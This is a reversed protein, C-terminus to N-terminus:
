KRFISATQDTYIVEWGEKELMKALESSTQIVAWEIQYKSLIKAWQPSLTIVSEYEYTLEGTTDAMSDAFVSHDPWLYMALYGGWNIENFMKGQQPNGQLWNVAQIPFFVPSFKYISQLSQSSLVMVGVAVTILLPWVNGRIRQEMHSLTNELRFLFGGINDVRIAGALVFPAVIGYLHINRGAILSMGSFGALLIAQATSIKQTKAALLFISFSLLGLLVLFEPRSFDPQRAEYMRSMLYSNNVFGLLSKWPNLGGPNILSALFSIGAVILLNKGVQLIAYNRNFLYDWLWGAAYAFLALFGAIFEGHMNSWVLILAPFYWLRIKENQSLKDLWTLWVALFLMSFLFPRTVWNLSTAAAGWVVLFLSFLRLNSQKSIYTYVISFTAALVLASLIVLGPLGASKYVWYFSSDSLWDHSHSVFPKEQYPYVFPETKPVTKTELIVKGTLLHRPLDGDMNLMIPGLLMVALFISIFLIDQLGPLFYLFSKKNVSM